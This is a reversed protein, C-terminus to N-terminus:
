KGRRKMEKLVRSGLDAFREKLVARLDLDLLADMSQKARWASTGERLRDLLARAADLSEVKTLESLGGDVVKPLAAHHRDLARAMGDAWAVTQRHLAPPHALSRGPDGRGTFYFEGAASESFFMMAPTAASSSQPKIVSFWGCIHRTPDAFWRTLGVPSGDAREEVLDGLISLGVDLAEREAAAFVAPDPVLSIDTPTALRNKTKRAAFIRLNEIQRALTQVKKEVSARRRIELAALIFVVLAGVVSGPM